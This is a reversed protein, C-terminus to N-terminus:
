YQFILLAGQCLESVIYLAHEIGNENIEDYFGFYSILNDHQARKLVNIERILYNELVKADRVQKKIAVYDGFYKGAHVTAFQGQGILKGIVVDKLDILYDNDEDLSVTSM